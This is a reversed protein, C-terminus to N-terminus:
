GARLHQPKLLLPGQVHELPKLSQLDHNLDSRCLRMFHQAREKNQLALTARKTLRDAELAEALLSIFIESQNEKPM